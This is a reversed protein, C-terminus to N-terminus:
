TGWQTLHMQCIRHGLIELSIVLADKDDKSIKSDMHMHQKDLLILWFDACLMCTKSEATTRDQPQM